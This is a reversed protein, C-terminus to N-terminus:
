RPSLTYNHTPHTDHRCLRLQRMAADSVKFGTPYDAQVLSADLTFHSCNTRSYQGSSDDASPLWSGIVPQLPERPFM